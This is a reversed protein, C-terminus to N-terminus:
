KTMRQLGADMHAMRPSRRTPPSPHSAEATQISRICASARATVPQSPRAVRFPPRHKPQDRRLEDIADGDAHDVSEHRQAKGDDLAEQINRIESVASKIRETGIHTIRNRRNPHWEGDSQESCKQSGPEGAERQVAKRDPRNPSFPYRGCSIVRNPAASMM